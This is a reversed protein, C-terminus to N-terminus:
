PSRWTKGNAIRTITPRSVSYDDAVAQQREGASCRARIEEVQYLTLRAGTVRTFWTGHSIKDCENQKFTGWALNCASNNSKNGDLHRVCPLNESNELFAEAVLRHVRAKRRKRGNCITLGAYGKADLSTSLDRWDDAWVATGRRWRSQVRGDATVRYGPFGAVDRVVGSEECAILVRM